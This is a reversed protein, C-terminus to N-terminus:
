TVTVHLVVRYLFIGVEEGKLWILVGLAALILGAVVLFRRSKMVDKGRSAAGPEAIFPGKIAFKAIFPGKM